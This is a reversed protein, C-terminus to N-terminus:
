LPGGFEIRFVSVGVVFKAPNKFLHAAQLFGLVLISLGDFEIRFIGVDV